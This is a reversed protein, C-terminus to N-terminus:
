RLALKSAVGSKRIKSRSPPRGRRRGRARLAPLSGGPPEPGAGQRPRRRILSPRNMLEPWPTIDYGPPLPRSYMDQFVSVRSMPRPTSCAWRTRTSVGIGPPRWGQWPRGGHTRCCPRQPQGGAALRHDAARRRRQLSRQRRRYRQLARGPPDRAADLCPQEIMAAKAVSPRVTVPVFERPQTPSSCTATSRIPTSPNSASIESAGIIGSRLGSSARM